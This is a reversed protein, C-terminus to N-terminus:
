TGIFHFVLQAWIFSRELKLFITNEKEQYRKENWLYERNQIICILYSIVDYTKSTIPTIETVVLFTISVQCWYQVRLFVGFPLYKSTAIAVRKSGTKKRKSYFILIYSKIPLLLQDWELCVCHAWQTLYELSGESPSHPKSHILVRSQWKQVLFIQSWSHQWLLM